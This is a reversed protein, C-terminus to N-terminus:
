PYIPFQPMTKPTHNSRRSEWAKLAKERAEKPHWRYWDKMAESKKALQEDTPKHGPKFEGAPYSHEGKKFCGPYGKKKSIAHALVRRENWVKHLWEQNKKLGLERAKRIMTRQSVGICEALEENLTTAFHMRLFSIMNGNWYIRTAYGKHEMVRGESNIYLGDPKRQYM